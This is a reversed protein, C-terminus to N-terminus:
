SLLLSSYILSELEREVRGEGKFLDPRWALGERLRELRKLRELREQIHTTM